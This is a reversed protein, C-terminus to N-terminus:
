DRTDGRCKTGQGSMGNQRADNSNISVLDKGEVLSSNGSPLPWIKRVKTNREGGRSGHVDTSAFLRVFSHAFSYM